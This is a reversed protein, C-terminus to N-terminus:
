KIKVPHAINKLMTEEGWRPLPNLHPPMTFIIQIEGEGM